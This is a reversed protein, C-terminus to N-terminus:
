DEDERFSNVFDCVKNDLTKFDLEVKSLRKQYYMLAEIFASQETEARMAINIGKTKDYLWYGERETKVLSITDNKFIQINGKNNM